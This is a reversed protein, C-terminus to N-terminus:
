PENCESCTPDLREPLRKFNAVADELHAPLDACYQVADAFCDTNVAFVAGYILPIAALARWRKAICVTM